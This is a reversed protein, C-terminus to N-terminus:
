QHKTITNDNKLTDTRWVPDEEALRLIEIAKEYDGMGIYADAMVKLKMLILKDITANNLMTKVETITREAPSAMFIASIRNMAPIAATEPVLIVPM